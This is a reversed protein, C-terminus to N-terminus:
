KAETMPVLGDLSNWAMLKVTDGEQYGSFVKQINKQNFKKVAFDVTQVEKLTTGSYLAFIAEGQNARLGSNITATLSGNNNTYATTFESNIYDMYNNPGVYLNDIYLIENRETPRENVGPVIEVSTNAGVYIGFNQMNRWQGLGVLVPDDGDLSVTLYMYRWSYKSAFDHFRIDINHWQNLEATGLVTNKCSITGDQALQIQLNKDGATNSDIALLTAFVDPNEVKFDYNIHHVPQKGYNCQGNLIAFGQSRKGIETVAGGKGALTSIGFSKDTGDTDYRGEKVATYPAGGYAATLEVTSTDNFDYFREYSTTFSKQVNEGNIMAFVNYTTGFPLATDLSLVLTRADTWEKSAFAVAKGSADSLVPVVSETDAIDKNFHATIKKKSLDERVETMQLDYDIKTLDEGIYLNDLCFIENRSSAYNLSADAKKIFADTKVNFASAIGKVYSKANPDQVNEAILEGNFYVDASAGNESSLNYKVAVNNWENPYVQAIEQGNITVSGDLQLVVPLVYEDFTNVTMKMGLIYATIHHTKVQFDASVVFEEDTYQQEALYDQLFVYGNAYKNLSGTYDAYKGVGPVWALAYDGSAGSAGAQGSAYIQALAKNTPGSKDPQAINENFNWNFDFSATEEAFVAPLMSAVIGLSLIGSLIQKKM